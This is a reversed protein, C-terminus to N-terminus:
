FLESEISVIFSIGPVVVKHLRRDNTVFADVGSAAATALHLADLAKVGQQARLGPFIRVAHDPYPLLEVASSHFYREIMEAAAYAGTKVPGVLLENLV